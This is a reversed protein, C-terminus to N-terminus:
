QEHTAHGDEAGHASHADGTAHEDHAEHSAHGAHEDIREPTAGAPRVYMASALVSMSGSEDKKLKGQVVVTQLETVGLLTRADTPMLGGDEGTFKVLVKSAPLKDTQCCYDWPTECKDGPIDSCAQLSSDVILFAARGDVWPNESGGIRGVVVVDDGDAASERMAIVDQAGDPESPLLLNQGEASPGKTVAASVAPSSQEADHSTCGVLAVAILLGSCVLKMRVM